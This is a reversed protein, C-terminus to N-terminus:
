SKYSSDTVTSLSLSRTLKDEAYLHMGVLNCPIVQPM